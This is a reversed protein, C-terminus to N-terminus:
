KLLILEKLGHVHYIKGDTQRGIEKMRIKVTEPTCTKQGKPLNIRLYKIRKSAITFPIAEQLERELRENNTYLFAVSKQHILKTVQLNVLNM